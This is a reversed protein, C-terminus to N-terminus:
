IGIIRGKVEDSPLSVTSVTVESSVETALRQISTVIIDRALKDAKAQADQEIKNIIIQADRKAENQMSDVITQKAEDSTMSAIRELEIRWTEEMESLKKERQLSKAERDALQRKQVDLESQKRELNEEKM